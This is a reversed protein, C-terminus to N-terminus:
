KYRITNLIQIVEALAEVEFFVNVTERYKTRETNKILVIGQKELFPYAQNKYYFAASDGGVFFDIRDTYGYQATLPLFNFEQPQIPVMGLEYDFIVQEDDRIKKFGWTDLGQWTGELCGYSKPFSIFLHDYLTIENWDPMRYCDNVKLRIKISDTNDITHHLTDVWSTYVWLKKGPKYAFMDIMVVPFDEEYPFSFNFLGNETLTQYDIWDDNAIVLSDNIYILSDPIGPNKFGVMVSDLPAEEEETVVIGNLSYFQQAISSTTDDCGIFTIISSLLLLNSFINIAYIKM